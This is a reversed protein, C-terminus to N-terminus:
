CRGAALVPAGTGAQEESSVRLYAGVTMARAEQETCPLKDGHMTALLEANGLDTGHFTTVSGATPASEAARPQWEVAARLLEQVGEATGGGAFFDWADGKPPAEPWRVVKPRARMAVLRAAIRHMHGQGEGDEDPWLCIPHSLLPRLSEECPLGGAGTVSGVALYERQRLADAPNEGATVIVLAGAPANLLDALRHLPLEATKGGEPEWWMRKSGDAYDVRRHTAVVQAAANAIPYDTRGV